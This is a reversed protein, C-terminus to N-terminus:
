RPAEIEEVTTDLTLYFGGERITGTPDGPRHDERLICDFCGAEALRDAPAAKIWTFVGEYTFRDRKIRIHKGKLDESHELTM